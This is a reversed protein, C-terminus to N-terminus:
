PAGTPRPVPGPQPSPTPNPDPAGPSPTPQLTDTGPRAPIPHPQIHGTVIGYVNRWVTTGPKLVETHSEMGAIRDGHSTGTDNFYGTDLVTFGPM